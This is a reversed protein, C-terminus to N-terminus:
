VEEYIEDKVYHYENAILQEVACMYDDWDLYMITDLSEYFRISKQM